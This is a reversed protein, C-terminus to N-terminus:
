NRVALALSQHLPPRHLVDAIDKQEDAAAASKVLLRNSVQNVHSYQMKTLTVYWESSFVM